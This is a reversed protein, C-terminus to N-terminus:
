LIKGCVKGEPENADKRIMPKEMNKGVALLNGLAGRGKEGLTLDLDVASWRLMSAPAEPAKIPQSHFIAMSMTSKGM